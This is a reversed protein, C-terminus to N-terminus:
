IAGGRLVNQVHDNDPVAIIRMGLALALRELTDFHCGGRIRSMTEPRIAADLALDTPSWGRARKAEDIFQGILKDLM